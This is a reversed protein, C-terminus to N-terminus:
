AVRCVGARGPAVAHTDTRYIGRARHGIDRRARRASQLHPSGQSDNRLGAARAECGAAAQAEGEFFAFQEFLRAVNSEEFAYKSQEVENQFFVDRYSIDRTYALDYVSEVNQLYMSMRELGYTIEGTIPKCDLSGVQQFYTFQTIEMGNLWVEWGLGWAGLTPNEWDDEVFRVDNVKLDFGLAELSGLYLELINEPSPKLVVQFQHHQHLRNPNEGYRGDKPRRSPQVYAARWPEPGLARLFTATHSTGAGVEMDYPQLLACGQAGWYQQLTLIVQQFTLVQVRATALTGFTGINSSAPTEVLRASDREEPLAADPRADGRHHAVGARGRACRRLACLAHPGHSRFDHGRSDRAHVLAPALAGRRPSRHHFHHRHQDRAADAAGTEIARMAAIQEHQEAALSRGYWADNTVNVLLTADAARRDLENGFADEYCINVALRQGAVAFPEQYAAGPTQDALPISLVSNILWGFVPKLPITEGFPVLHHKRYVQTTASGVSVVSNYYHDYDGAGEAPEFFFLGVLLDGGNRKAASRLQAVFEPDVEDAFMPLASEPLVILKGEARAVLDAYIALTQQRYSPLFKDEGINGQVLSVTTPEGVPDSWDVRMLAYGCIWVIALAAAGILAQRRSTDFSRILGALWAATLALFFGSLLVGGIPAYGALPSGLQAYGISLWGFGSLLWGRLWESLTWAAAAVILRRM